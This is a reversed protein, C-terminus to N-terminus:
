LLLSCPTNRSAHSRGSNGAPEGGLATRLEGPQQGVRRSIRDHMAREGLQREFGDLAGPIVRAPVRRLSCAEEADCRRNQMPQDLAVRNGKGRERLAASAM